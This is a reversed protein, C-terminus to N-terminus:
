KLQRIRKEIRPIRVTFLTGKGPESEVDITGGHDHVIRQSIMLGLGNGHEKSTRYAEFLHAIAESDMGAGTDRVTVIVSDDDSGAGIFIEGGERMAEIANKLLNFFVQELQAADIAAAPIHSDTNFTVSIRREEFEAQLTALTNKLPVAVSGPALNPRSPRLAQLFGRLIGDLRMIQALCDKVPESDPMERSLIQLNLSIANLPNGIEHAVGSALQRIAQSAGERLEDETRKRAATVDAIKVLTSGDMPVTQIELVRKEPYTVAIERKSAKALPLSLAPLMDALKMGLLREAAPNSWVPVGVDDLVIYGEGTTNFILESFALEDTVRSYQERLHAADLRGIHKRVGKFFSKV